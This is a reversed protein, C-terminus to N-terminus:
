DDGLMGIIGEETVIVELVESEETPELTTEFAGGTDPAPTESSVVQTPNESEAGQPHDETEAVASPQQTDVQAPGSGEVRQASSAAANESLSPLAANATEENSPRPDTCATLLLMVLLLVPLTKWKRM